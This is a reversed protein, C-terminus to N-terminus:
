KGSFAIPFLVIVLLLWVGYAPLFRVVTAGVAETRRRSLLDRLYAVLILSLHVLLLINLGVVATRNPSAGFELLRESIAWLAVADLAVVAAALGVNAWDSARRVDGPERASVDYFLMAVVLVLLVNIALLLNRDDSLRIGVVAITALFALIALAFFPVFIRALTPAFNEVIYRKREALSAAVVPTAVAGAIAIHQFLLVDINVGATGFIASTLLVLTGGGLGILVAYVVTEGTFRLFHVAGDVSRWANGLALPLLLLWSIAPLHLAALLETSSQDAFGFLTVFLNLAFVATIIVACVRTTSRRQLVFHAIIPAIAWLSALKLWPAADETLYAGGFLYPIQSLVAAAAALAFLIWIDRRGSSLDEPVALRKWLRNVNTKFYERGLEHANGIRRTAVILAEDDSLGGHQLADIEDRLHSELEEADEEGVDGGSVLSARWSRIQAELSISDKM